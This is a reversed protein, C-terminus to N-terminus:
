LVSLTPSWIDSPQWSTRRRNLSLFLASSRAGERSHFLTGRPSEREGETETHNGGEHKGWEGNSILLENRSDWTKRRKCSNVGSNQLHRMRSGWIKLNM